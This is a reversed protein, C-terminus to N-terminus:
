FHFLVAYRFTNGLDGMPVWAFDLDLRKFGIGAGVSVGSAGTADTALSHYGTRVAYRFGDTNREAWEIGAGYQLNNDRPLSLTVGLLLRDGLFRGSAGGDVVFPLPDGEEHFKVEQGFHRAALGLTYPSSGLKKLLGVDGGWSSASASDIKLRVFRATAGLSLTEGLRSGYSLAYASDLDTFTGQDSEDAARKQIDATELTAASIGFTGASTPVAFAGYAYDINQFWQTHMATLEANKLQALGAPNFYVANVDDAIATFAEGMATPRAGAGIKLFQAGSTGVKSNSAWLGAPLALGTVIAIACLRRIV